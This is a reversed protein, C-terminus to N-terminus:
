MGLDYCQSLSLKQSSDLDDFDYYPFMELFMGNALVNDIYEYIMPLIGKLKPHNECYSRISISM